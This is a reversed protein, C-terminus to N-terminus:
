KESEKEICDFNSTFNCKLCKFSIINKRFEPENEYLEAPVKITQTLHGDDYTILFLRKSVTMLSM